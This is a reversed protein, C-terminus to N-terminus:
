VEMDYKRGDFTGTILQEELKSQVEMSKDIANTFSNYPIGDEVNQRKIYSSGDDNPKLVYAAIKATDLSLESSTGIEKCLNNFKEKDQMRKRVKDLLILENLRRILYDSHTTVQMFCGANAFASLIDAMMRQKLPHLHAEPEEFLVSSTSVDVKRALMELPAIERISAAAASIPIPDDMNDVQYFYKNDVRKIDGELIEHFLQLLDQSVQTSIDRRLNLENLGQLFHFYVGTQPTLIETLIPGRSPPFVFTAKLGRFSGFLYNILEFRLLFSFPTEEALIADNVRYSLEEMSLIIDVKEENVLGTLEEKFRFTLKSPVVSPLSVEISGSLTNNGLMMGVYSIADEALWQELDEKQIELAVGENHFEKSLEKYDYGKDEFFHTLRSSNILVEYFYHCLLAMYSKGLGSEGSFIVFPLIELQSNKVRGFEKIKVNISKM